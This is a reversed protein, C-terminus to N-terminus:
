SRLPAGSERVPQSDRSATCRTTPNTASILACRGPHIVELSLRESQDPRTMERRQKRNMEHWHHQTSTPQEKNQEEPKSKM